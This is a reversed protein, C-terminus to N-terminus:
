AFDRDWKKIILICMRELYVENDYFNISKMWVIETLTIISIHRTVKCYNEKVLIYKQWWGIVFSALTANIVLRIYCNTKSTSSTYHPLTVKVTLVMIVRTPNITSVRTENMINNCSDNVNQYFMFKEKSHSSIQKWSTVSRFM